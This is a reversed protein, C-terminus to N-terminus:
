GTWTVDARAAPGPRDASGGSPGPLGTAGLGPQRARGGLGGPCLGAAPPQHGAPALPLLIPFLHLDPYPGALPSRLAAYLEGHNYKSRPLPSSSAYSLLVTPHDQLNQGVEPIDAVPDIGLARLPGAAGIGSLMLLRPSGVAGACLVM